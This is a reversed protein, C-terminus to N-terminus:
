ICVVTSPNNNLTIFHYDKGIISRNTMFTSKTWLVCPYMTTARSTRLNIETGGNNVTKSSYSFIYVGDHPTLFASQTPSWGNGICSIKKKVIVLLIPFKCCLCKHM